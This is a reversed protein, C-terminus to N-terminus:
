SSLPGAKSEPLAFALTPLDVSSGSASAPNDPSAPVEEAGELGLVRFPPCLGLHGLCGSDGAGPQQGTHGKM